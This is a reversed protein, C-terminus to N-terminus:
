DATQLRMAWRRWNGRWRPFFCGPGGPVAALVSVDFRIHESGSRGPTAALRLREDCSPTAHGCNTGALPRVTLAETNTAACRCAVVSRTQALMDAGHSPPMESRSRGRIGADIKRLSVGPLRGRCTRTTTSPRASVTSGLWAAMTVKRWTTSAAQGSMEDYQTMAVTLRWPAIRM